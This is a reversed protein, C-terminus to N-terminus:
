VPSGAYFNYSFTKSLVKHFRKGAYFNFSFVKMLYQTIPVSEYEEQSLYLCAQVPGLCSMVLVQVPGLCSTSLVKCKVTFPAFNVKCLCSRFKITFPAFNVSNVKVCLWRYINWIKLCSRRCNFGAILRVHLLVLKRCYLTEKWTTCTRCVPSLM